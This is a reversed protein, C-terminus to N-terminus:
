HDHHHHEHDDHHVGDDIAVLDDGLELVRGGYAAKLHEPTLAESPTGSSIVSGNVLVVYDARAAEDLDHTAVVVARGADREESIIQRIQHISVVDLGAVPEDLLLVGAEQALGQAVFVRQRQGGSMEALHRKSLDAVDLRNMATAVAARDLARLRGFPGREAARALAVVEGATVLLHESAHQTQLVYAVDGAVSITGSKTPLVGAIAHLLTSKGSGNPGVLATVGAPIRLEDVFLVENGGRHVRVDSIVIAPAAGGEANAPRNRGSEPPTNLTIGM